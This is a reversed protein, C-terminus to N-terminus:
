ILNLFSQFINKQADSLNSITNNVKTIFEERSVADKLIYDDIDKFTKTIKDFTAIHNDLIQSISMKWAQDGMEKEDKDKKEKKGKDKDKKEKKDKDKDKKEKKDKDKDKKEKKDKDKEEEKGM